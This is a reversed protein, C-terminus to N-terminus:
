QEFALMSHSNCRSFYVILVFTYSQYSPSLKMSVNFDRLRSCNVRIVDAGLAALTSGIVPGAIIRVIEVVKIGALPRKDASALLPVAPTSKAHSQLKYNVLPHKSLDKSMRTQSWGEPTYCISGCFGKAINISELAHADFKRVHRSIIQVAEDNNSCHVTPDLGIAQLVTDADLSGHLQYWVSPDKTAYNATTRLRLPTAFTDRELDTPFIGGLEGRKAIQRVTYGNRKSMGVSGLWFAAHDTNVSVSRCAGETDRLDLLENAVIGCMAHLAAAVTSSKMPGPTIPDATGEFSVSDLVAPDQTFGPTAAALLKLLRCADQPVPLPDHDIWSGPGYVGTGSVTQVM